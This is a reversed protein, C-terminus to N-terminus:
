VRARAARSMTTQWVRMGTIYLQLCVREQGGLTADSAAAAELGSIAEAYCEAYTRGSFSLGRLYACFRDTLRMGIREDDLDRWVNHPNRGQRVLPHGFTVLDGLHDAIAILVYAAWIDDYRGVAPSLFYAPLAEAALATNQSNFPSWTGAALTFNRPRRFGTVRVPVALRTVADVDPEELWLGANVIVRGRRPAVVPDLEAQGTRAAPPFGRHYFRFGNQEALADCVNVWGSPSHLAEFESVRGVHAHGGFYDPEALFNDDDITVIVDAGHEHALLLGINRRQISDYPIHAALEPYAALYTEQDPIGLFRVAYGSRDGLGGCFEAAAEPTKRDGVVLCILDTWGARRADALYADLLTPVHITTTVLAIRM